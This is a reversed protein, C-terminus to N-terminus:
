LGTRQAAHVGWRSAEHVPSMSVFVCDTDYSFSNETERGNRIHPKVRKISNLSYQFRASQTPAPRARWITQINGLIGSLVRCVIWMPCQERKTQERKTKHCCQTCNSINKILHNLSCGEWRTKQDTWIIPLIYPIHVIHHNIGAAQM